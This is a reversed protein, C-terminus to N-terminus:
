PQWQGNAMKLYKLYSIITKQIILQINNRERVRKKRKKWNPSWFPEREPIPGWEAITLRTDLNFLNSARVHIETFISGSEHCRLRVRQNAYIIAAAVFFYSGKL